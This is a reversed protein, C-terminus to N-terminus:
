QWVIVLQQVFTTSKNFTSEVKWAVHFALILILKQSSCYYYIAVEFASTLLKGSECGLQNAQNLQERSSPAWNANVLHVTNVTAVAASYANDNIMIDNPRSRPTSRIFGTEFTRWDTRVDTRGDVFSEEIEIFNLTYTSTSSLHMATHLIVRNLTLTLTVLGRFDSIWGNEFAIEEGM